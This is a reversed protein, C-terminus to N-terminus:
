QLKTAAGNKKPVPPLAARKGMPGARNRAVDDYRTRTATSAASNTMLLAALVWNTGTQARSQCASLCVPALGLGLSTVAKGFLALAAATGRDTQRPSVTAALLHLAFLQLFSLPLKIIHLSLSIWAFVKKVEAYTNSSANYVSDVYNCYMM